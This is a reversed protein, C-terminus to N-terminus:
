QRADRRADRALIIPAVVRLYVESAVLEVPCPSATACAGAAIRGAVLLGENTALAERARTLTSADLPLATRDLIVDTVDRTEETNLTWATTSPCPARVCRIGDDAARYFTGSPPSGSAGLWASTAVLRGIAVGEVTTSIMRGEVLVRKQELSSRLEQEEHEPLGLEELDIESVYCEPELAGDACRTEARNVLKVFWGGCFPAACRRVDRRTVAFYSASSGPELSQTSSSEGAVSGTSCSLVLSSLFVIRRM